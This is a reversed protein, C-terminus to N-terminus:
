FLSPEPAPELTVTTTSRSPHVPEHPWPSAFAVVAGYPALRGATYAAYVTGPFRRARDPDTTFMALAAMDDARVHRRGALLPADAAIYLGNVLALVRPVTM